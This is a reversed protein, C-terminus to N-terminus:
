IASEVYKVLPQIFDGIWLKLDCYIEDTENLM